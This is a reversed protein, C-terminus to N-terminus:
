KEEFTNYINTVQMLDEQGSGLFKIKYRRAKNKTIFADFIATIPPPLQAVAITLISDPL